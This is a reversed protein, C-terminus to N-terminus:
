RAQEAWASCSGGDRVHAPTDGESPVRADSPLLCSDKGARQVSHALSRVPARNTLPEISSSTLSGSGQLNAFNRASLSMVYSGGTFIYGKQCPFALKADRLVCYRRWANGDEDLGLKQTQQVALGPGSAEAVDGLLCGFSENSSTTISKVGGHDNACATILLDDGFAVHVTGGGALPTSTGTTRDLVTFDITPPTTDSPNPKTKCGECGLLLVLSAVLLLTGNHFIRWERGSSRTTPVAGAPM